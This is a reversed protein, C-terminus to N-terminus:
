PSHSRGRTPQAEATAALVAITVALGTLGFLATGAAVFAGKPLWYSNNQEFLGHEIMVCNIWEPYNKNIYNFIKGNNDPYNQIQKDLFLFQQLVSGFYASILQRKDLKKRIDDWGFLMIIENKINKNSDLLEAIAVNILEKVWKEMEKITSLNPTQHDDDSFRAQKVVEIYRDAFTQMRSEDLVHPLDDFIRNGEGRSIAKRSEIIFNQLNFHHNAVDCLVLDHISPPRSASMANEKKDM